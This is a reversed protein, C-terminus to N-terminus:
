KAVKSSDKLFWIGAGLGICLFVDFYFISSSTLGLVLGHFLVILGVMFELIGAIGIINHFRQPKLALMAFFIGVAGYVGAMMRFWYQMMPDEAVTVAGMNQLVKVLGHWPMFVALLCIGWGLASALLMLRLIILKTKSKKM